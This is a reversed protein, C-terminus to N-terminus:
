LHGSSDSPATTHCRARAAAFFSHLIAGCEKELIGCKIEFTHNFAAHKRLDVKGGMGGNKPDWAGFVIRTIRAYVLAATCMLCPELTVFLECNTLRYNGLVEAAQRIALIEAHATPDNLSIPQNYACGLAIEDAVVVAGVPVEKKKAGCHAQGIACNMWFEDRRTGM